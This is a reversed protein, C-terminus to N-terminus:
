REIHFDPNSGLGALHSIYHVFHCQSVKEELYQLKEVLIIEVTFTGHEYKM